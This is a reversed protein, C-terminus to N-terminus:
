AKQCCQGLINRFARRFTRNYFAYIIPNMCSNLYGVWFVLTIVWAYDESLGCKKPCVGFTITYWLFIPGMCLIFMGMIMGLTKAARHEKRMKKVQRDQDSRDSKFMATTTQDNDGSESNQSGTSTISGMRVRSKHIQREQNRATRYIRQYLILMIVCPIWFSIASSIFAYLQSPEFTCTNSLRLSALHEQTTYWGAFIPVFSLLASLIWSLAILIGVRRITM